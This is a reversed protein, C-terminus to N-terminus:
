SRIPIDKDFEEDRGIRVHDQYIKILRKTWQRRNMEFCVYIEVRRPGWKEM